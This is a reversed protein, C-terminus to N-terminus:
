SATPLNPLAADRSEPEVRLCPRRRMAANRSPTSVARYRRRRAGQVADRGDEARGGAWLGVAWRPRSGRELAASDVVAGSSVAAEEGILGRPRFDLADGMLVLGILIVQAAGGKVQLSAPLLQQAVTGSVTWRGVHRARGAGRGQQQAGGVILMTWIQFTLIPQFDEPERFRHLERVPRRGAGHDVLRDRVGAATPSAEKGISLAARRTRAIAKLVRGWPSRVM